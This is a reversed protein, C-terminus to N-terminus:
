AADRAQQKRVEARDLIRKGARLWQMAMWKHQGNTRCEMKPPRSDEIPFYAYVEGDCFGGDEGLEPCPGVFIITRNAPRDAAARAQAVTALIEEHLEKVEPHRRIEPIHSLLLFSASIAPHRVPDVTFDEGAVDRAWTTLTNVLYDAALSAGPSYAWRERALGPAGGGGMKDMKSLTVNLDEIVARVDGLAIEIHVTEAHCLLGEVQSCGCSPCTGNTV